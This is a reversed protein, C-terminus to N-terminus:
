TSGLSPIGAEEVLFLHLVEKSYSDPPYGRKQEQEILRLAVKELTIWGQPDNTVREEMIHDRACMFYRILWWSFEKYALDPNIAKSEVLFSVTGFFNLVDNLEYNPTEGTLLKKAATRRLSRIEHSEM